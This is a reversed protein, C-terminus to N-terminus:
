PISGLIFAFEGDVVPGHPNIVTFSSEVMYQWWDGHPILGLEDLDYQAFFSDGPAIWMRDGSFDWNGTSFQIYYHFLLPQDQRNHFFINIKGGEINGVITIRSSTSIDFSFRENLDDADLTINAIETARQFDIWSMGQNYPRSGWEAVIDLNDLILGDLIRNLYRLGVYAEVDGGDLVTRLAMLIDFDLIDLFGDVGYTDVYQTLRSIFRPNLRMIDTLTDREFIAWVWFYTSSDAFTHFFKHGDRFGIADIIDRYVLLEHIRMGLNHNRSVRDVLDNVHNHILIYLWSDGYTEIFYAIDADSALRTSRWFINEFQTVTLGYTALLRQVSFEGRPIGRYSLSALYVSYEDFVHYIIRVVDRRVIDAGYAFTGAQLTEVHRLAIYDFGSMRVGFGGLMDGMSNELEVIEEMTGWELSQGLSFSWFRDSFDATLERLFTEMRDDLLSFFLEVEQESAFNPSSAFTTIYSGLSISVALFAVLIRKKM